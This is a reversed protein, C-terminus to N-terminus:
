LKSTEQDETKLGYDKPLPTRLCPHRGEGVFLPFMMRMEILKENRM